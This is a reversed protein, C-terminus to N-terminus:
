AYLRVLARGGSAGHLALALAMVTDDHGGSPAGYQFDGNAGRRMEYAGLEGLLVPDDLLAIAGSEIALALGDILLRKSPATTTFARMPLGEASLAEINPGGISNAEALILQPQWRRAMRKLRERQQAWGIQNFRALEYLQKSEMGMVAIVTYDHMRGWDVGFCLPEQAIKPPSKVCNQINQFVGGSNSLFAAEYEEAFQRAPMDRRASEIEEAAIFPNAASPMRWSVWDKELPDLGRQYLSWFWNRGRPTSLFLAKGRRDSLAPRLAYWAAVDCYAAEDIVVSDLGSGRLREPEHASKVAIQGGNSFNIIRNTRDIRTALPELLSILSSWVEGAMTYTPLVWWGVGGDAATIILDLKALETKGFRRGCAVVRFRTANNLIIAQGPHPMVYYLTSSSSDGAGMKSGAGRERTKAM